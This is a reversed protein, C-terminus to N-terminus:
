AARGALRRHLVLWGAAALLLCAFPTAILNVVNWGFLHLTTGSLFSATAVAGFILFDNAAQTKAREEPAYCETLLASGGIYTFNWGLGILVLAAWFHHFGTGSLAAAIAGLVLVAGLAIVRDVGFRSILSGTFFAPAFMAVVHWEIVTASDDFTHAAHGMALPTATMILSMTAYGITGSLVAVVCAPQGLIETLPRGRRTGDSRSSPPVAVFYLLVLTAGLVGLVALYSGAYLADLANRSLKALEPGVFAAVVGGALVLSIARPRFAPEATDAAAFRYYGAFGNHLGIVLTGVCLLAFSGVTMAVAALGAGAVGLMAGIMFGTRRGLGGMLLSGPITSIATGTVVATVPLTALVPEPTLAAGALAGITILLSNASMFLAQCGALLAVNRKAPTM